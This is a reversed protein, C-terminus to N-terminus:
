APVAQNRGADIYAQLDAPAILWKQGPKTAPLEGTRCLAVVQWPGVRLIKAAEPATYFVPQEPVAAGSNHPAEASTM